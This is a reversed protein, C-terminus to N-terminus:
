QSRERFPQSSEYLRLRDQMQRALEQNGARLALDIGQQTSKVAQDFQRAEAHAAGLTDLAEPREYRTLECVRLALRVAEAGDRVEPRPNTALLWALNNLPEVWDPKATLVQRYHSIAEAMRGGRILAQALNNQASADAPDLRIAERYHAIAEDIRGQRVLAVGLSNHCEALNPKLRLAETYQDIARDLKGREALAKGLNGHAEAFDSKLRVAEEFCAIAQDTQGGRALAIGLNHHAEPFSPRLRLAERYHVIAQDLKGRDALLDALNTHADAMNPKLRLAEEYQAVAQDAHGQAALAFALGYHADPYNPDIRLAEKYEALAQDVRGQRILALGLYNHAEPFRPNRRLVEKFCAIAQDLKGQNVLMIGRNVHAPLFDPALRAAEAFHAMARETQGMEALANGWNNHAEAYDPKLRVAERYHGIATIFNNDGAQALGLDNHAEAYDPWIRLAERFYYMGLYVQGQRVMARGLHYHAEAFRPRARIAEKFHVEAQKVQGRDLLINGIMNWLGADNPDNELATKWHAMAEERQRKDWLISGVCSHALGSSPTKTAADLWLTYETNMISTRRYTLVSFLCCLGVATARLGKRLRASGGQYAYGLVGAVFAPVAAISFYQWHDATSSWRMYYINFFGLVPFLMVVYSALAFYAPRAWGRRCLWLVTLVAVLALGPLYPLLRSPDTTWRPYVFSLKYPLIAKSLYFWVAWGAIILRSLFSDDRVIYYDGGIANRYQFWVTALSLTVSVAFFPLSRRVDRWRLGGRLWWVCLLLVFPTMSPAAKALMALLFAGLSLVYWWRSGGDRQFKLYFLITLPYFFMPLVNKIQAIWAADEANVPHIAFLLAGLWAWPIQLQRLVRWMLVASIAHLVVNVVHYGRPNMGWVRYQVWLLTYTLPWYDAQKTSLWFYRLGDPSKTHPNDTLVAGDDFSFGAKYSPIYTVLTIAIIVLGLVVGKM